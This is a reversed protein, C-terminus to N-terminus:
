FVRPWLYHSSFYTWVAAIMPGVITNAWKFWRPWDRYRWMLYLGAPLFVYMAAGTVWGKTYWPELAATQPEAGYKSAYESM